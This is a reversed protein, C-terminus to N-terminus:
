SYLRILPEIVPPTASVPTFTNSECAEYDVGFREGDGHRRDLRYFVVRWEPDDEETPHDKTSWGSLWNGSCSVHALALDYTEDINIGGPLATEKCCKGISQGFLLPTGVYRGYRNTDCWVVVDGNTHEFVFIYERWQPDKGDWVRRHVSTGSTTPVAAASDVTRRLM